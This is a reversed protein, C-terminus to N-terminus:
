AKPARGAEDRRRAPDRRAARGPRARRLRRAAEGRLRRLRRGRDREAGPLPPRAHQRRVGVSRAGGLDIAGAVGRRRVACVISHLPRVWRRPQGAWRMSKPWPLAAIAQRAAAGAARRATQAATRRSSPSGSSARAPTASRASTSAPRPRRAKLFGEIAQEPAGVRPGRREESVDPQAAPLGDVVLALRRPTAFAEADRSPRARGGEAERRRAAESGRRARRCARRSKRPSSNSCCSPWPEPRREAPEGALGRLLGQGARARPRHLSRARDRTIVGRADLLNFLHSAKM